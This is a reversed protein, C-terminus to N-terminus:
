ATMWEVILVLAPLVVGAATKATDYSLITDADVATAAVPTLGVLATGMLAFATWSSDGSTTGSWLKTVGTGDSARTYVNVTAFNTKNATVDASPIVRISTISAAHPIAGFITEDIEDAATADPPIVAIITHKLYKDAAKEVLHTGPVGFQVLTGAEPYNLPDDMPTPSKIGYGM